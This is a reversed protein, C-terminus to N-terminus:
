RNRGRERSRIRHEARAINMMREGAHEFLMRFAGCYYNHVGEPTRVWDNKCGGSCLVQWPCASCEAPKEAGRALFRRLTESGALETLPQECLNGLRWEDLAFFDCPYVSGDAEVVFYAGCNGCTACTSANDRLLLHIYDDFLRISHYEGHEWDRYWLDFLRCLFRGYAEPKLSWPFTGRASDGPDLCAIFQIFSFGLKKLEQYVKQPSRACQATVVCLANVPVSAKQLLLASRSVRNWSGSGETDVRHANHLEPFGDLSLGVLFGEQRLFSAWDEDLLVGNTQISFAIKVKEPCLARAKETFQRFFDLEALTPEGGQFAFNVFGPAEVTRYAERILREATEERMIGPSVQQRRLSEERYFCYRCRLNCLSSAPKILFNITKM